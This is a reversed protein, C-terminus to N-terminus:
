TCINRSRFPAKRQAGAFGSRVPQGIDGRRIALIEPSPEIAPEITGGRQSGNRMWRDIYPFGRPEAVVADGDDRAVMMALAAPILLDSSCVDSSWDSIRM